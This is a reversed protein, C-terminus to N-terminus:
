FRINATYFNRGYSVRCGTREAVCEMEFGVDDLGVKIQGKRLLHLIEKAVLYNGSKVAKIHEDILKYRTMNKRLM